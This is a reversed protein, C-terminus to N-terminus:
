GHNLKRAERELRKKEKRAEKEAKRAAKKASKEADEVDKEVNKQADTRKFRANDNAHEYANQNPHPNFGTHPGKAFVPTAMLFGILVLFVMVNKM